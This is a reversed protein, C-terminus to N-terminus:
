RPLASLCHSRWRCRQCVQEMKDAELICVAVRKKFDGWTMIQGEVLGCLLLCNKDMEIVKLGSKCINCDNNPCAACVIDCEPHLVILLDPNEEFRDIVSQLNKVFVEDYGNGTFFHLCLGHHPRVKIIDSNSLSM